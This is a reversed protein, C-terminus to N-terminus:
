EAFLKGPNLIGNPDFVAKIQRMAAIEEASRSHHLAGRKLLGVGHEASISGGYREVVAFIRENVAAFRERFATRDLDPPRLVNLHLNGDGLHGYWLVEFGPYADEVVRELDALFGPIRSITVALDNKAPERPAIAESIGERLEWFRRCDAESEAVLPSGAWGQAVAAEAAALAADRAAEDPCDFDVLAYYPAPEPFPHRRGRAALVHGLSAECFLEFANLLLAERLVQFLDLLLPLRPVPFLLVARRGPPPALQLTAEVVIGLTGESGVFLHRLDYGTANKLLGRQLDLVDGRGTVVKLGAVWNRMPGYRVVRVGGANTAVNGGIQSSGSAAFDVPFFLGREAAFDQVARTVVGAEVEVTREIEHFRLIRRLDRCSIVLEGQAAVAGGSLGTRGGSPVLAVRHLNAFRVIEQIEAVSRPLAVALPRPPHVTTWDRGYVALSEADTLLQDPPLLRALAALLHSRNM